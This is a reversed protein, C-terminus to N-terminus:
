SKQLSMLNGLHINSPPCQWELAPHEPSLELERVMKDSFLAVLGLRVL